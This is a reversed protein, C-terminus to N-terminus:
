MYSTSSEPGGPGVFTALPQSNYVRPCPPPPPPQNERPAIDKPETPNIYLGQISLQERRITEKVDERITSQMVQLESITSRRATSSARRLYLVACGIATTSGLAGLAVVYFYPDTLLDRTWHTDELHDFIFRIAEPDQQYTIVQKLVAKNTEYRYLEFKGTLEGLARVNVQGRTCSQYLSVLLGLGAISEMVQHQEYADRSSVFQKIVEATRSAAYNDACANDSTRCVDSKVREFFPFKAFFETMTGSKAGVLLERTLTLAMEEVTERFRSSVFDTGAALVIKGLHSLEQSYTSRKIRTPLCNNFSRLFDRTAQFRRLCRDAPIDCSSRVLPPVSKVCRTEIPACTEGIRLTIDFPQVVRRAQAVSAILLIPLLSKKVQNMEEVQALSAASESGGLNLQRILHNFHKAPLAKTLFDALQSESPM